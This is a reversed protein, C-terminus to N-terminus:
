APATKNPQNQNPPNTKTNTKSNKQKTEQNQHKPKTPQNTKEYFTLTIYGTIVTQFWKFLIYLHSTRYESDAMVM